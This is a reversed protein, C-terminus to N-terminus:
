CVSGFKDIKRFLSLSLELKNAYEKLLQSGTDHKKEKQFAETLHGGKDTFSV